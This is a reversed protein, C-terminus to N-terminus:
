ADLLVETGGDGLKVEGGSRWSPTKAWNKSFFILARQLRSGFNLMKIATLDEKSVAQRGVLINSITLLPQILVAEIIEILM